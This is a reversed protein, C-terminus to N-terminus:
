NFNTQVYANALFKFFHHVDGNKFDIMVFNNKIGKKEGKSASKIYGILVRLEVMHLVGNVKHTVNYTHNLDLGKEEVFTDLWTNFDM